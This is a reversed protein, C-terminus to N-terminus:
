VYGCLRMHVLLLKGVLAVSFIGVSEVKDVIDDECLFVGLLSCFSHQRSEGLVM